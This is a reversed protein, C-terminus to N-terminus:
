RLILNVLKYLNRLTPARKYWWIIDNILPKYQERQERTQKALEKFTTAYWEFLMPKGKKKIEQMIHKTLLLPRADNKDHQAVRSALVMQASECVDKVDAGTFGLSARALHGYSVKGVYKVKTLYYKYMAILEKITKPPPVYIMKGFRGPRRFAADVDWPRNTAGIVVMGQSNKAINDTETLLTTIITKMTGGTFENIQARSQAIGEMEDLFIIAPKTDRAEQFLNHISRESLGQYPNLIESVNLLLMKGNTEGSIASGLLTKGTGPPGYLIVGAGYANYDKYIEPNRLMNVIKVMIEEKAEELGIVDSLRLDSTFFDFTKKEKYDEEREQEEKHAPMSEHPTMFSRMQKRIEASLIRHDKKPFRAKYEDLLKQAEDGKGIRIYCVALNYLATDDGHEAAPQLLLIAEHWRKGILLQRITEDM